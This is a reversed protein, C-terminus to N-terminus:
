GCRRRRHASRSPWYLLHPTSRSPRRFPMPGGAATRRKPACFSSSVFSEPSRGAAPTQRCRPRAPEGLRRDRDASEHKQLWADARDIAARFRMPEASALSERSLLTALPRGYTAPAGAADDGEIPWSGDAAQDRALQGAADVLAKRDQVRGTSVATALASTFAVRALRKDSFPGKGGNHDWEGPKRLWATTEALAERPVHHGAESALLLARAADGNNHCSFCHNQRSWRPVERSLFAVAKAEPTPRASATQAAPWCVSSSYHSAQRRCKVGEHSGTLQPARPEPPRRSSAEDQDAQLPRHAPRRRSPTGASCGAQARALRSRRASPRGRPGDRAHRPVRRGIRRGPRRHRLHRRRGPAERYREAGLEADSVLLVKYGMSTLTKRFADQIETQAEVCLVSKSPVPKPPPPAAPAAEPPKEIERPMFISGIFEDDEDAKTRPATGSKAAEYATQFRELDAVVDDMTQYRAKLDIKM